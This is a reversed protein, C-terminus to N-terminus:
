PTPEPAIRKAVCDHRACLSIRAAERMKLVEAGVVRDDRMRTFQLTKPTRGPGNAPDFMRLLDEDSYETINELVVAEILSPIGERIAARIALDADSWLSPSMGPSPSSTFLKGISVEADASTTGRVDALAALARVLKLRTASAEPPRYGVSSALGPPIPTVLRLPVRIEGGPVARGDVTKPRFRFSQSMILAANGFGWGSPSEGVVTCADARGLVTIQCRILAYGDVGLLGAVEPFAKAM